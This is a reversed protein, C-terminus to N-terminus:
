TDILFKAYLLWIKSMCYDIVVWLFCRRSAAAKFLAHKSPKSPLVYTNVTNVINM